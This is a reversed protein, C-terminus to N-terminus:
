KNSTTERQVPTNQSQSNQLRFTKKVLMLVRRNCLYSVFIFVGQLSNLLSTIWSFIREELNNPLFSDIMQFVWSIGTITFLKVYVSFHVRNSEIQQKEVISSTKRINKATMVFFFINLLCVFMIPSIFTVIVAIPQNLFCINGGYGINSEKEVFLEVAINSMVIILPTGYSYLLYLAFSKRQSSTGHQLMNRFVRFMHFSCVNLCLFMVLWFYHILVGIIKCTMEYQNQYLGFQYLTHGAIMAVVLAMNNKGPLSRLAPFIIYALLTFLLFVLSLCTCIMLSTGLINQLLSSDAKKSKFLLKYKSACMRVKNSPTVTYDLNSVEVGISILTLQLTDSDILFENQQLEVQQCTLLQTVHSYRGLSDSINRQIFCSQNIDPIYSPLRFADANPLLDLQYWTDSFSFNFTSTTLSLLGEELRSRSVLSLCSLKQYILISITSENWSTGNNCKSNYLYISSEMRLHFFLDRLSNLISLEIEGEIKELFLITDNIHTLPGGTLELSLIYGLGYTIDLLPFCGKELLTRGPYCMLDICRRQLLFLM